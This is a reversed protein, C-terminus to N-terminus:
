LKKMSVVGKAVVVAYGRLCLNALAGILTQTIQFNLKKNNDTTSGQLAIMASEVFSLINALIVM